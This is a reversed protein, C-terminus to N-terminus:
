IGIVNASAMISGVQKRSNCLEIVPQGSHHEHNEEAL